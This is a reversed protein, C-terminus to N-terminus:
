AARRVSGSSMQSLAHTMLQDTMEQGDLYIHNHVTVHQGGSGGGQLPTNGGGYSALATTPAILHTVAAEILPVGAALGQAYEQVFNRPWLDLEAGPGEKAPSHFGLFSGIKGAIKSVANGVNGIMGLIGNIFGQILNVGWQVAQAPWGSIFSLITQWLSQLPGQIHDSWASSFFSGIHQWLEQVKQTINDWIGVLFSLVKNWISMVLNYDYQFGIVIVDRVFNVAASVKSVIASWVGVIFSLVANWTHELWTVGVQITNRIVDVLDRFYTNHNYLWEFAAGIAHIPTLFLNLIDMWVVGLFVRLAAMVQRFHTILLYLGVFPAALLAIAVILPAFAVAMIIGLAIFLPKFRNFVGEFFGVIGSWLNQFFTAIGGWVGQLWDVIAGWHQIALIIGVVLLAIAAAILMIPWNLAIFGSAAGWAATAMGWLGIIMAPVMTLLAGIGAGALAILLVKLAIAGPSAGSLWGAFSGLAAGANMLANMLTLVVPALHQGVNIWFVQAKASAVAMKQNFDDQVLNWGTIRGGTTQAAGAISAVNAQFTAMHTGGLQLATNLGTAGGLMKAMAATYTQASPGGKTLLSNFSDTQKATAAFQTMMHKTIPDLGSLDKSWQKTTLSGNLYAEAVKQLSVPMTAIEAKADASAATASKFASQLVLGAPGMHALVAQELEALTGSLGKQGLHLAVDNASVGMQAMEQVAQANPNQLSRITNALNQTAQQASAGQATMTAIAGGVEAYSIHAAAAVPLVASLSNALDTMHMKGAAVTAILQNTDSAASGAGQGYANMDSTLANAVTGLDSAGVKAGEAAALLVSLGGKAATFGASDVMYMGATLQDTSTGTDVAMQKIGNGLGAIAGQSEGAGTVLQTMQEQFNGFPGTAQQFAGQVMQVGAQVAFFSMGVKSITDFMGNFFGAGGTEGSQKTQTAAADASTGIQDMSGQVSAATESASSAIQNINSSVEAAVSASTDAVGALSADLEGTTAAVDAIAGSAQSVGEVAGALEQAMSSAEGFSASLDGIAGSTEAVSEVSSVVQGVSSILQSIDAAFTVVIGDLTM